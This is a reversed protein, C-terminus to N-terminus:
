QSAQELPACKYGRQNIQGLLEQRVFEQFHGYSRGEDPLAGGSAKLLVNLLRVFAISELYDEARAQMANGRKPRLVGQCDM